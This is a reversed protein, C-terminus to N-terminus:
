TVSSSDVRGREQANITQEATVEISDLTYFQLNEDHGAHAPNQGGWTSLLGALIACTLHRKKMEKMEEKILTRGEKKRCRRDPM